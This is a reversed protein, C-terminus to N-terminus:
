WVERAVTRIENAVVDPAEIPVDHGSTTSVIRSRPSRSAIEEQSELWDKRFRETAEDSWGPPKHWEPLSSSRFTSAGSSRTLAQELDPLALKAFRAEWWNRSASAAV